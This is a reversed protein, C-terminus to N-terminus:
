CEASGRGSGTPNTCFAFVEQRAKPDRLIAEYSDAKELRAKDRAAFKENAGNISINWRKRTDAIKTELEAPSIDASDIKYLKFINEAAIDIGFRTKIKEKIDAM